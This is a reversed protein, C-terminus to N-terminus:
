SLFAIVTKWTKGRKYAIKLKYTNTDINVLREIPIIPHCCVTVIIDNRGRYTIGDVESGSYDGSVLEDQGDFNITNEIFMNSSSSTVSKLYEEWMKKFGSVKLQKALTSIRGIMQWFQFKNEHFSYIYDYPKTTLMFDDSSFQPIEKTSQQKNDESM